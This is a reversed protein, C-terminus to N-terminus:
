AELESKSKSKGHYISRRLSSQFPPRPSSHMSLSHFHGIPGDGHGLDPSFQIGAEIYRCALEVADPIDDAPVPNTSLAIRCAIAATSKDANLLVVSSFLPKHLFM